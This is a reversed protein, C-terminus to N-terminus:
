RELAAEGYVAQSKPNVSVVHSVTGKALKQKADNGANARETITDLNM